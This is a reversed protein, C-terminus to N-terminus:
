IGYENDGISDENILGYMNSGDELTVIPTDDDYYDSLIQKLQGVTLTKNMVDEPVYAQRKAVIFACIKRM